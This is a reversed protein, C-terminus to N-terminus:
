PYPLARNLNLSSSWDEVSVGPLGDFHRMNVTALTLGHTKATAAILLDLDSPTRGNVKAWAKLSAFHRAVGSDVPLVRLRGKLVAEHAATLRKSERAELGYLVEAECIVSIALADDGLTTWRESV